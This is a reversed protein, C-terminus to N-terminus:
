SMKDPNSGSSKAFKELVAQNKALEQLHMLNAVDTRFTEQWRKANRICRVPKQNIRGGHIVDDPKLKDLMKFWRDIDRKVYRDIEEETGAGNQKTWHLAYAYAQQKTVLDSFDASMTKLLDDGDSVSAGIMKQKAPTDPAQSANFGSVDRKLLMDRLALHVGVTAKFAVLKDIQAKTMAKGNTLVCIRRDDRPLHLADAHNTFMLFSAYNIADFQAGYKVNVGIKGASTDIYTKITDYLELGARYGTVGTMIEDCVILTRAYLWGNYPSHLQKADTVGAYQGFVGQLLQGVSSRGAGFVNDAVMLIAFPRAEPHQFKYAVWDLFLEREGEDPILHELHEFFPALDIQDWKGDPVPAPIARYENFMLKGDSTPFLLKQGPVFARGYATTRLKGSNHWLNAVTDRFARRNGNPRVDVGGLVRDVERERFTTLNCIRGDSLDGVENRDGEIFVYQKLAVELENSYHVRKGRLAKKQSLLERVKDLFEGTTRDECHGHQCKFARTLKLDGTGVGIPYYVTGTEDQNTHEDVFPCIVKLGGDAQRKRVLGLAQLADLVSDGPTLWDGANLVEGTLAEPQKEIPAPPFAAELEEITYDLGEVFETLTVPYADYVVAGDIEVNKNRCGWPARVWKCYLSGGKDSVTGYSGKILAKARDEDTCPDRLFYGVQYNGASSEIVYSPPLKAKVEDLSMGKTGIDDLLFTHYGVFQANVFKLKGDAKRTVFSTGFYAAATLPDTSAVNSVLSSTSIANWNTDTPGIRLAFVPEPKLDPNSAEFAKVRRILEGLFRM